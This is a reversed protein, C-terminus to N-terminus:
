RGSGRHFFEVRTEPTQHASATGNGAQALMLSDLAVFGAFSSLLVAFIQFRMIHHGQTM